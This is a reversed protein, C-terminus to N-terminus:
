RAPDVATQATPRHTARARPRPRASAAISAWHQMIPLVPKRPTGISTTSSPGAAIPGTSITSIMSMSTKEVSIVSITCAERLPPTPTAAITGTSRPIAALGIIRAITAPRDQPPSPRGM